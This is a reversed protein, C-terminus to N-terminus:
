SYKLNLEIVNAASRVMEPIEENYREDKMRSKPAAVSIAGRVVDDTSKIPAAVCRLGGLREEHDQAYGESRVRELEEALRERDTISNDTEAPMGHHDLISEVRNRPLHALIAKGLATNHMYARMGAYTDLDVARSGKSRYIYVAKGREPVAFNALEDTQEALTKVEPEALEYVDMQNRIYGGLELFQLGLHYAEDRQIVYGEDVLTRLHNHVTSKGMGLEDALDTVRAGDLTKLCQIIRFSKATTKVRNTPPTEPM